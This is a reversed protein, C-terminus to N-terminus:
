RLLDIRFQFQRGKKNAVERTFLAELITQV